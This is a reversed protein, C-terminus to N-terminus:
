EREKEKLLQKKAWRRYALRRMTEQREKPATKAWRKKAMEKSDM